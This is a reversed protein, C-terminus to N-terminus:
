NIAPLLLRHLFFDINHLYIAMIELVNLDPVYPYIKRKGWSAILPYSPSLFWVKSTLRSAPTRISQLVHPSARVTCGEGGDSLPLGQGTPVCQLLRHARLFPDHAEPHRVEAGTGPHTKPSGMDQKTKKRRHALGRSM